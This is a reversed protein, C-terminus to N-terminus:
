VGEKTAAIALLAHEINNGLYIDGTEELYDCFSIAVHIEGNHFGIYFGDKSAQLIDEITTM